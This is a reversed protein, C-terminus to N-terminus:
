PQFMKNASFNNSRTLGDVHVNTCAHVYHESCVCSGKTSCVYEIGQPGPHNRAGSTYKVRPASAGPMTPPTPRPQSPPNRAPAGSPQQSVGRSVGGMRGGGRGGRGYGSQRYPRTTGGVGPARNWQNPRPYQMPPFYPRQGQPFPPPTEIRTTILSPSYMALTCACIYMCVYM